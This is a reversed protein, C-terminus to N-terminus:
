AAGAIERVLGIVDAVDQETTRYNLICLRLSFAGRLRTSSMLVRQTANVATNVRENLADLAADDHVGAPHVRFCVVGFRAPSLVELEPAERVLREAYAALDMCRDIAGRIAAVGFYNVSVWVKLARSYRTLQEGYDAFNVDEDRAEVDKLYDALVHFAAHLRAPERVMLCGCEFPVYLWKHPDLTVSDAREIGAMAARGRETLVAFGAYAADVHFWLGERAAFDALAALPDVAGTNTAGASGVVLFPLFGAERDHAVADGLADMRLRFEGDSAVARVNARPIGAIWAARAVSSHAQDSCYMVLAPLEAGRETAAHRAAVVATLTANSGGSTLLGRAGAPMGLWQRFWELVTLEVENPGAAVSWVGAFFNYGAALYDGLVAPFTPVSPVYGMFRPHPERAHYPFVRERLTALLDDFSTGREPARQPLAVRARASRRDLTAQVPEDRLGALHEAVLDTVQHGLRRMTERDLELPSSM